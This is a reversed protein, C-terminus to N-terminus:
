SDRKSLYALIDAADTDKLWKRGAMSQMRRVTRLWAEPSLKTDSIRDITHCRTCQASMISQGRAADGELLALVSHDYVEDMLPENIVNQITVNTQVGVDIPPPRGSEECASKLLSLGPGFLPYERLMPTLVDVVEEWRQQDALLYARGLTANPHLPERELAEEFADNAEDPRELKRLLNGLRAWTHPYDPDLEAAQRLLKVAEDYEWLEAHTVAQLYVWRITGPERKSLIRYLAVAQEFCENAHYTMALSALTDTDADDERAASDLEVLRERLDPAQDELAPVAPIPAPEAAPEPKPSRLLLYAVGLGASLVIGIIVYRM